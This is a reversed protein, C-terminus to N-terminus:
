PGDNVTDPEVRSSNPINKGVSIVSDTSGKRHLYLGKFSHYEKDCIDCRFQPGQGGHVRRMHLKLDYVRTNCITCSFVERGLM